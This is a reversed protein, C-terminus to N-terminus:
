DLPWGSPATGIRLHGHQSNEQAPMITIHVDQGLENLFSLLRELSFRSLRGRILSSAKPQDIHLLVSVEAQTLERKQILKGIQRALEAKALHDEPKDCSLDAFVNGSSEEYKITTKMKANRENSSKSVLTMVLQVKAEQM